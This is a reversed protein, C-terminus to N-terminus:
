LFLASEQANKCFTIMDQIIQLIQKKTPIDITQKSIIVNQISHSIYLEAHVSAMVATTSAISPILVWIQNHDWSFAKCECSRFTVGFDFSFLRIPVEKACM